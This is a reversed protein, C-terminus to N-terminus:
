RHTHKPPYIQRMTPLVLAPLRAGRAARVAGIVVRLDARLAHAPAAVWELLTLDEVPILRWGCLRIVHIGLRTRHSALSRTRMSRCILAVRYLLLGGEDSSVICGFVIPLHGM